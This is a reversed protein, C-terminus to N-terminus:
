IPQPAATPADDQKDLTLKLDFHLGLHEAMAFLQWLDVDTSVQGRLISAMQTHTLECDEALRRPDKDLEIIKEHLSDKNALPIRKSAPWFKANLGDEVRKAYSAPSFIDVLAAFQTSHQVNQKQGQQSRAAEIMFELISLETQPM